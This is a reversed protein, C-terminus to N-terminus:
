KINNLKKKYVVAPSEAKDPLFGALINQRELSNQM